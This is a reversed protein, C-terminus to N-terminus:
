EIGLAKKASDSKMKQIKLLDEVQQEQENSPNKEKSQCSAFSAMVLFVLYWKVKKLTLRILNLIFFLHENLV